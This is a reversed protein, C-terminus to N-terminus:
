SGDGSEGKGPACAGTTQLGVLVLKRGVVAVRIFVARVNMARRPAIAARRGACGRSASVSGIRKALVAASGARMMAANCESRLIPNVRNQRMPEISRHDVVDLCLDAGNAGKANTEAEYAVSGLPLTACTADFAEQTIAIRIV